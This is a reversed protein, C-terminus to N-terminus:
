SLNSLRYSFKERTSLLGLSVWCLYSLLSYFSSSFAYQIFTSITILFKAKTYFVDNMRTQPLFVKYLHFTCKLGCHTHLKNNTHVVETYINSNLFVRITCISKLEKMSLFDANVSIINCITFHVQWRILYM